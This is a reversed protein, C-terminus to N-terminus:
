QVHTERTLHKMKKQASRLICCTLTRFNSNRYCLPIESSRGISGRLICIIRLDDSALPANVCNETHRSFRWHNHSLQRHSSKLNPGWFQKLILHSELGVPLLRLVAFNRVHLCNSTKMTPPRSLVTPQMKHAASETGVNLMLLPIWNALM